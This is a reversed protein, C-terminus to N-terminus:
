TALTLEAVDNRRLQLALDPDMLDVNTKIEEDSLVTFPMKFPHFIFPGFAFSPAFCCTSVPLGPRAFTSYVSNPRM